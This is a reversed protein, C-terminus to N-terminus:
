VEKKLVTECDLVTECITQITNVDSTKYDMKECLALIIELASKYADKKETQLLTVPVSREITNNSM